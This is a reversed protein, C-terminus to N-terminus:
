GKYVRVRVAVWVRVQAWAGVGARLRLRVKFRMPPWCFDVQGAAVMSAVTGDTGGAGSMAPALLNLCGHGGQGLCGSSFCCHEAQRQARAPASTGITKSFAALLARPM